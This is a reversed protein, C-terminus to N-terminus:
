PVAVTDMVNPAEEPETVTVGELPHRPVLLLWATETFVAGVALAPASTESQAPLLEM